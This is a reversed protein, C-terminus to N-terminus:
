FHFIYAFGKHNSDSEITKDGCKVKFRLIGIDFYESTEINWYRLIGIDLNELM